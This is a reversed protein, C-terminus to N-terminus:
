HGVLVCLPADGVEYNDQLYQSISAPAQNSEVSGQKDAVAM